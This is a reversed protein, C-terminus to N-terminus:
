QTEMKIDSKMKFYFTCKPALRRGLQKQCDGNMLQQSAYHEKTIVLYRYKTLVDHITWTGWGSGGCKGLWHAAGYNETPWGMMTVLEDWRM